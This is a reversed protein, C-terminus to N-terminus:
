GIEKSLRTSNKKLILDRFLTLMDDVKRAFTYYSAQEWAYIAIQEALEPHDALKMISKALSYPDLEYLMANKGDNFLERHCLVDGAVIPKGRMMYGYSKLPAAYRSDIVDKSAPQVLIDCRDIEGAVDDIQDVLNIDIRDMIRSDEKYTDLWDPPVGVEKRLRGVIRLYFNSPLHYMADLLIDVGRYKDITGIYGIVIKNGFRIQPPASLRPLPSALTLVSPNISNGTWDRLDNALTQTNCIIADFNHAASLVNQRFRGEPGDTLSFPNTGEFKNPDMGLPDHAEYCFLWNKMWQFKQRNSGWYLLEKPERLYLVKTGHSSSWTPHFYFYHTLLKEYTSRHKVLVRDPIQDLHMSQMRLRSDNIEYFEKLSPLSTAIRPVFFTTDVVKSLADGTWIADFTNAETSPYSIAHVYAVKLDKDDLKGPSFSTM